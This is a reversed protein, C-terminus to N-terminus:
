PEEEQVKGAASVVGRSAFCSRYCLLGFLPAGVELAQRHQELSDLSRALQQRQVELEATGAELGSRM